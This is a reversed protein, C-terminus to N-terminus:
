SNLLILHLTTNCVPRSSFSSPIKDLHESIGPLRALLVIASPLLLEKEPLPGPELDSATPERVNLLQLLTAAHLPHTSVTLHLKPISSEQATSAIGIVITAVM